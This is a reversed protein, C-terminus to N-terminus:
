EVGVGGRWFRRPHLLWSLAHGPAWIRWRVEGARDIENRSLHKRLRHKDSRPFQPRQHKQPTSSSTLPTPAPKTRLQPPTQTQPPPHPDTPYPPRTEELFLATGQVIFVARRILYPSDWEYSMRRRGGREITKLICCCAIERPHPSLIYTVLCKWHDFTFFTTYGTRCDLEVDM